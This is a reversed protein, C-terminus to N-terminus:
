DIFKMKNLSWMEFANLLVGVIIIRHSKINDHYLSARAIRFQIDAFMLQM